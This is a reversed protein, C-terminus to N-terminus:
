RNQFIVLLDNQSKLLIDPISDALITGTDNACIVILDAEKSKAFSNIDEDISGEGVVFEGEVGAKKCFEYFAEKRIELLQSYEMGNGVTDFPEIAPDVVPMPFYLFDQFLYPQVGKFLNRLFLLCDKGEVVDVALVSKLYEHFGSKLVLVPTNVKKIISSTIKENYLTIILSDEERKTELAVRDATDNEYVLIAPNEIKEEKARRKIEKKIENIDVEKKSFLPLEFLAEERVFMLTIGCDHEKSIEASKKLLEDCRDFGNFVTLIRNIKKM